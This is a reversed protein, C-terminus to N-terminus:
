DIIKVHFRGVRTVRNRAHQRFRLIEGHRKIQIAPEAAVFNGRAVAVNEDRRAHRVLFTSQAISAMRMVMTWPGNRGTGGNLPPATSFAHNASPLSNARRPCSTEWM